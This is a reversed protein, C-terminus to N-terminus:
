VYLTESFHHRAPRPVAPIFNAANWGAGSGIEIEGESTQYFVRVTADPRVWEARFVAGDKSLSTLPLWTCHNWFIDNSIKRRRVRM